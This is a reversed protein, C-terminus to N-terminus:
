KQIDSLYNKYRRLYNPYTIGFVNMVKKDDVEAEIADLIARNRFQTSSVQRIAARRIEVQLLKMISREALRQPQQKEEDVQFSMSTNNYAVFLPDKSKNRPRRDRPVEKLYLYIQRKHKLLLKLTTIHGDHDVQLENHTFNIDKMNIRSIQAPTLGYFRMLYLISVNRNSLEKHATKYLDPVNQSSRFSKLLSKYEQDSVFDKKKLPFSKPADVLDKINFDNKVELHELLKAIVTCIRNKSADSYKKDLWSIFKLYDEKHLQHIWEISVTQGKTVGDIWKQFVRLDSRSRKIYSDKKDDKAMSDLYPLMFCPLEINKM